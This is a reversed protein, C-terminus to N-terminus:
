EHTSERSVLTIEIVGDEGMRDALETGSAALGLRDPAVGGSTRLYEMVAYPRNLEDGHCSPLVKSSISDSILIRCPVERLFASLLKLHKSGAETMMTGQSALGWFLRSTPIRLVRRNHYAQAMAALWPSQLPDEVYNTESASGAPKESGKETRDLVRNAAPAVAERGLRGSLVSYDALSAWIGAFQTMEEKSYSSFTTLMVFFSLMLTIMDSFSVYWLGVSHGGGEEESHGKKSAM